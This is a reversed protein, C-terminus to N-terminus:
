AIEAPIPTSVKEIGSVFVDMINEPDTSENRSLVSM